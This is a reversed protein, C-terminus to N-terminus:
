YGLEECQERTAALLRTILSAFEGRQIFLTVSISEFAM